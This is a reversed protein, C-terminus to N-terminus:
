KYVCQLTQLALRHHLIPRTIIYYSHPGKKIIGNVYLVSAISLTFFTKM